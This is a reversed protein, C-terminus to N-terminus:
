PVGVGAVVGVGTVVSVGVGAVVGMVACPVMAPKANLVRFTSAPVETVQIFMSLAGCVAVDSAELANWNSVPVIAGPAVLAGITNLVAPV